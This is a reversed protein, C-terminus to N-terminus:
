NLCIYMLTFNILEWGEHETFEYLVSCPPHLHPSYPSVTDMSGTTNWPISRWVCHKAWTGWCSSFWDRKRQMGNFRQYVCFALYESFSNFLMRFLSWETWMYISIHIHLICQVWSFGQMWRNQNCEYIDSQFTEYNQIANKGPPQPRSRIWISHRFYSIHRHKHDGSGPRDSPFCRHRPEKAASPQAQSATAVSRVM